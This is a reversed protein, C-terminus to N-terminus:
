SWVGVYNTACAMLGQDADNRRIRTRIGAAGCKKKTQRQQSIM